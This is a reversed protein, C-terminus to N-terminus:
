IEGNRMKDHTLLPTSTNEYRKLYKLSSSFAAGQDTSLGMGATGNRQEGSNVGLGTHDPFAWLLPPRM